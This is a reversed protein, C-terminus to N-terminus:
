WERMVNTEVRESSRTVMIRMKIGAQKLIMTMIIMRVSLKKADQIM